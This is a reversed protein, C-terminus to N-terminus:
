SHYPKLILQYALTECVSVKNVLKRAGESGEPKRARERARELKEVDISKPHEARWLFLFFFFSDSNRGFIIVYRESERWLAFDGGRALPAL